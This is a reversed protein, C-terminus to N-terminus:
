RFSVARQGYQQKLPPPEILGLELCRWILSPRNAAGLADVLRRVKHVITSECCCLLEAMEAETKGYALYKVLERDNPTFKLAKNKM